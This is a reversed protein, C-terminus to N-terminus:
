GNVADHMIDRSIQQGLLLFILLLPAAWLLTGVMEISRDPASERQRGPRRPRGSVVM